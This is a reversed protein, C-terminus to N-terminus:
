NGPIELGLSMKWSRSIKPFFDLVKGSKGPTPVMDKWLGVLLILASVAFVGLLLYKCVMAADHAQPLDTVSSTYTTANWVIDAAAASANDNDPPIFTATPEVVSTSGQWRVDAEGSTKFVAPLRMAPKDAADLSFFDATGGSEEDSDDIVSNTVTSTSSTLSRSNVFGASATQKVPLVTRTPEIVPKTLHASKPASTKPKM